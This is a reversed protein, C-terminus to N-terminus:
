LLGDGEDLGLMLNLNQIAQGAAGKWLNDIAAFVLARGEGATTAHIRCLNTDRVDRVGPPGAVVEVFPEGGFREAYLQEISELPEALEVYCSALLGQDIPVLHPVFTVDVADGSIRELEQEIVPLHRHGDVAYPILNETLNVLAGREGAGRGAGSVGSKADIVASRVLGREALPALALLAATPYCGPNAVLEATRIRDRDLETLGYVANELLEPEGHPAYWREYIAADVLRFDASLDVVALGMGRMEAVVPVAAVEEDTLTRDAARFELRLALSKRGEGVQEGRYLDFVAISRLLEGGAEAVLARIQAAEVEDAVVVAIDQEVAPFSIVDEYQESGSPSAEVVPALDVEFAAASDLDWARCVLPHIEGVWGAEAGDVLVRGARGPSLFPQGGPVVEVACGLGAAVGELAGKLSYFDPEAAEGRWGAGPLPGSALCALRWPEFAPAPRLGAFSGGLTGEDLPEGERLCARGSEYLAVRPAGHALNYRAVDLLGGLLTTRLASHDISLPNSIRITAARPDDDGIRLRGPQGPDTLSLTVIGDFGLDRALDEARRRLRQERSLRGGRATAAPLTAPLHEAYGHIRGVEEILDAERTVDYHRHFPVTAELDDGDPEVEFDLRRLYTVQDAFPIALGLLREARGGRLRVRRPGPIEAAADITGPVMRAGCLEVLLRSAIRQARLALEPHLQKENRNSADTRLGLKRSTRLINVGNWTAVELLVRTTSESVESVLGGMIGAIGTPGDRDCVLVTDADFSRETGDLTTMTEGERATRVIIEGGRVEDLDFAHLPQATMLMVYNTIDVVNNIPRMGAATLRSKLWPPSPGIEVETFVRASFRPCLEPVEVTVSAYDDVTGEGTAEADGDWPPPALEAATVAHLERAVGYVGFCDVRNSTPELEIVPEAVALVEALPTGPEPGPDLVMIGEHDDGIGLEQESLIMGDSEVGRLKARKLKEGGPMRAGPTVVAVTQGAAVNSAGCVITRAGEGTEVECVRLRDANPHPEASLVRGVVFGESSPAGLHSIRELEISHMSLSEGVEEASLGPDCYSTLWSYPVKM